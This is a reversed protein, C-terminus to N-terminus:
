YVLASPILSYKVSHSPIATDIVSKVQSASVAASFQLHVFVPNSTYSDDTPTTAVSLTLGNTTAAAKLNSETMQASDIYGIITWYVSKVTADITITQEQQQSMTDNIMQQVYNVTPARYYGDTEATEATITRMKVTGAVTATAAKNLSTNSTIISQVQNCTFIESSSTSSTLSALKVSGYQTSSAKQVDLTGDTQVTLSQGPKITGTSTATAVPLNNKQVCGSIATDIYTKTNFADAVKLTGSVSQSIDSIFQVTGKQSATAERVDIKGTSAEKLYISGTPIVIGATSSTAIPIQTSSGDIQNQILKRVTKICPVYNEDFDTSALNDDFSTPAYRVLGYSAGAASTSRTARNVTIRSTVSDISVIDGGIVIGGITTSTAPAIAMRGDGTFKSDVYEKTAVTGAGTTVVAGPRSSTALPVIISGDDQVEINCYSDSEVSGKVIGLSDQTATSVDVANKIIQREEESLEIEKNIVFFRVGADNIDDWNYAYAPVKRWLGKCYVYMSNEDFSIQGEYGDSQQSGPVSTYQVLNWRFTEYDIKQTVGDIEALLYIKTSM